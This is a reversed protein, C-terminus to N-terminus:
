LWKRKRFVVVMSVTLVLMLGWVGYYGWTWTLEPMVEFNMGYVGVIFTLPIFITSIITLVRMIENTRSSITSHYLDAMGKLLDRTVEVIDIIQTMHDYVDHLYIQTKEQILAFDGRELRYMVDRLPWVSRWITLMERKLHYVADFNDKTAHVLMQEELAVAREDIKDLIVFYNDVITDMLAYLLYDSGGGRIRPKGLRLRNRVATFTDGPREQFSLVFDPGLVLSVQESSVTGREADYDIMKLVVYLYGELQEVKPRQHTNVIDEITLPHIGFQQCLQEVLAVQHVGDVNLWLSSGPLRAAKVEEVTAPELEQLQDPTYLFLQMTVPEDAQHGTYMPSGPPLGVKHKGKRHLSALTRASRIAKLATPLKQAM